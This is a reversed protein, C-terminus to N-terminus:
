IVTPVDNSGLDTPTPKIKTSSWPITLERAKILNYFQKIFLFRSMSALSLRPMTRLMIRVVVVVVVV